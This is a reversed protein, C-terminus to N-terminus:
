SAKLASPPLNAARIRQCPLRRVRRSFGQDRNDMRGADKPTPAPRVVVQERHLDPSQPHQLNHPTVVLAVVVLFALPWRRPRGSPPPRRAFFCLSSRTSRATSFITSASRSKSEGGPGPLFSSFSIKPRTRDPSRIAGYRRATAASFNRNL